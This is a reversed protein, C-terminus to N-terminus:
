RFFSKHIINTIKMFVTRVAIIMSPIEITKNLPLKNESNFKIKMYKKIMIMQTNLKQGLTILLKVGCNRIM